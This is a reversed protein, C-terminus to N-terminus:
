GLLLALAIATANAIAHLLMSAVLGLRMRVFGLVVGAWLQPLVMPVLALSFAPYNVLHALGFALAGIWFLTPFVRAFWAPPATKRRLALWGGLAAVTLVIFGLSAAVEATHAAVLALMVGAMLGCGLLWLARPRGTLWGRFVIEEGVPAVLTVLPLLLAHPVNGFAEPAPLGMTQQWLRLLPALVLLLMALHLALMAIWVRRAERDHLGEPQRLAPHALWRAFERIATMM